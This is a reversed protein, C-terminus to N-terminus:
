DLREGMWGAIREAADVVLKREETRYIRRQRDGALLVGVVERKVIVPVAYASRLGEALMIPYEHLRRTALLDTLQLSMPRGVKVVTGSLGSGVREAIAAYRENENGSALEWQLARMEGMLVGFCCCDCAIAAGLEDLEELIAQESDRNKM